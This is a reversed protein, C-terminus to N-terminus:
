KLINKQVFAAFIFVSINFTSKSPLSQHSSKCNRIIYNNVFRLCLHGKGIKAIRNLVKPTNNGFVKLDNPKGINRYQAQRIFTIGSVHRSNKNNPFYGAISCKQLCFFQLQSMYYSSKQIGVKTLIGFYELVKQNTQFTKSCMSKNIHVMEYDSHLRIYVIMQSYRKYQWIVFARMADPWPCYCLRISKFDTYLTDSHLLMEVGKLSRCSARQLM